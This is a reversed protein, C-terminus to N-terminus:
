ILMQIQIYININRDSSRLKYSFIKTSDYFNQLIMVDGQM